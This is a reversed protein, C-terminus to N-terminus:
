YANVHDSFTQMDRYTPADALKLYFEKFNELSPFFIFFDILQGQKLYKLQLSIDILTQAINKGNEM